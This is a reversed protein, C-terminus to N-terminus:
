KIITLKETQLVQSNQVIKVIYMGQSLGQIDITNSLGIAQQFAIQGQLNYILVEGTFDKVSPIDIHLESSVPNPYITANINSKSVKTDFPIEKCQEVTKWNVVINQAYEYLGRAIFVASGGTRPCKTAIAYLSSLQESKLSNEQLHYTAVYNNVKQLLQAALIKSSISANQKSGIQNPLLFHLFLLSFILKKM